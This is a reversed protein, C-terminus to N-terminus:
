RSVVLNVEGMRPLMMGYQVPVLQRPNSFEVAEGDASRDRMDFPIRTVCSFSVGCTAYTDWIRARSTRDDGRHDVVSSGLTATGGRGRLVIATRTTHYRRWELWQALGTRIDFKLWTM